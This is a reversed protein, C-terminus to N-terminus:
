RPEPAERVSTFVALAQFAPNVAVAAFNIIVEGDQNAHLTLLVRCASLLQTVSDDRLEEAGVDNM